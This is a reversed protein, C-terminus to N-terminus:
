RAAQAAEFHFCGHTATSRTTRQMPYSYPFLLSGAKRTTSHADM